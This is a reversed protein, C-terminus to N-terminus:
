FYRKGYKMRRKDGKTIRKGKLQSIYTERATPENTIGLDKMAENMLAKTGIQPMWENIPAVVVKITKDFQSQIKEFVEKSADSPDIYISGNILAVIAKRNAM